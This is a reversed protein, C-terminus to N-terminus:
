WADAKSPLIHVSHFKSIDKTIIEITDVDARIRISFGESDETQNSFEPRHLIDSIQPLKIPIPKTAEFLLPVTLDSHLDSQLCTLVAEYHALQLRAMLLDDEPANALLLREVNARCEDRNSTYSQILSDRVLAKDEDSFSQEWIVTDQSSPFPLM